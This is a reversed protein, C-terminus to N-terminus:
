AGTCYRCLYYMIWKDVLSHVLRHIEDWELTKRLNFQSLFLVYSKEDLGMWARWLVFDQGIRDQKCDAFGWIDSRARGGTNRKLWISLLASKASLVFSCRSVHTSPDNWRDDHIKVCSKIGSFKRGTRITKYWNLMSFGLSFSFLSSLKATGVWVWPLFNVILKGVQALLFKRSNSCFVEM